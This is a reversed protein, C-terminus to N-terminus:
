AAVGRGGRLELTGELVHRQGTEPDELTIVARQRRSVDTTTPRRDTHIAAKLQLLWPLAALEGATLSWGEPTHLQNDRFRWGRWTEGAGPLEGLALIRLLQYAAWPVRAQGAEWRRYTKSCVGCLVAAQDRSIGGHQRVDKLIAGSVTKKTGAM